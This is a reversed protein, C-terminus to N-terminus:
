QNRGSTTFRFSSFSPNPFNNKQSLEKLKALIRQSIKKNRIKKRLRKTSNPVKRKSTNKVKVIKKEEEEPIGFTITGFGSKLRGATKIKVM